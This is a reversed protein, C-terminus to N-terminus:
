ELYGLAKLRKKVMVAEEESYTDIGYKEESSGSSDDYKIPHSKFYDDKFATKIVKGDMDIPIPCGMLYLLTPALDVINIGDGVHINKFPYGKFLFIGKLRHTGSWNVLKDFGDELNRVIDTDDDQFSPRLDFCDDDWWSLLLDPAMDIYPGRYVEDKRFINKIIKKGTKPDKLEFLKKTIFNLLDNYEKGPGVIGQPHKGRLNVWINTYTPLVEYCYAKTKNWDIASLSTRRTDWKKRIEPLKNAIKAKQRPSLTRRLFPDLRKIITNLISGSDHEKFQLLGLNSLYQNLHVVKNSTPGAGHDSMLVVITDETVAELIEGIKEDIKQYAKLIADAYKISNKPDYRYHTKDMYHWFYHQIQDTSCFVLMFVDVPYNKILHIALQARHDEHEAMEKLVTDRKDDSRMFELHRIELRVEGFNKRLEEKLPPPHIFESNEDPTDMGSIMYGNIKEPPFTMPVNVVGVKIGQDSFIRWITKSRRTNANTYFFEYSNNKPSIFHFLGHKGPNKGTMFSTWAPSTLPPITSDLNGWAGENMLRAFHPLKGAEVWPTILSFTAGDIGIILIKPPKRNKM